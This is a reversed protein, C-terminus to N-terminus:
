VKKCRHQNPKLISKTKGDLNLCLIISMKKINGSTYKKSKYIVPHVVSKPLDGLSRGEVYEMSFFNVNADQGIDYIQVVNHHTLQAAAYAERVFRAIFVPDDAWEANIVKLAVARDLSMQRALYVAGMGGKGLQKLIEYGGLEAPMEGDDAVPAKKAPKKSPPAPDFDATEDAHTAEEPASESAFTRDGDPAPQAATRDFEDAAPKGPASAFTGEPDEKLVPRPAPAKVPASRKPAPEVFTQEDVLSVQIRIVIQTGCKPCKPQFKGPKAVNATIPNRCAPCEFQM